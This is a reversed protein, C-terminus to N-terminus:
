HQAKVGRCVDCQSVFRAVDRKMRTWWFSQKLDQYMKTSGPHISLKSDHAEKMIVERLDGEKPVVARDEFMVTGDSHVSFCSYKPVSAEIGQKVKQIMSSASQADCIRERITPEVVLSSLYGAPVLELNLKCFKECLDPHM